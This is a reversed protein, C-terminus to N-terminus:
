YVLQIYHIKDNWKLIYNDYKNNEYDNTTCLYYYSGNTNNKLNHLYTNILYTPAKANFNIFSYIKSILLEQINIMYNYQLGYYKSYKVIWLEDQTRLLYYVAQCLKVPTWEIPNRINYIIYTDNNMNLFKNIITEDQKIQNKKIPINDVLFKFPVKIENLELM